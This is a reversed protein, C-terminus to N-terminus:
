GRAELLRDLTPWLADFSDIVADAGLDAAVHYGWNVAITATGAARGMDIDYSTDGVMVARAAPLGTDRLVAAIMAPDPKSPHDDATQRSAFHAGLGHREIMKDLGRRSKGTAVALVTDPAERLRDLMARAGPFLPSGEAAGDSPANFSDKYAQVMASRRHADLDPCLRAMAQPLSLGVIGLVAARPPPPLGAEAFAATMAATIEAQSDVLTGDVDFIVLRM